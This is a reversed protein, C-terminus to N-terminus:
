KKHILLNSRSRIITTVFTDMGSRSLSISVGIHHSTGLDQGCDQPTWHEPLQVEVNGLLGRGGLSWHIRKSAETLSM